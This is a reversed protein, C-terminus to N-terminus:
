NRWHTSSFNSKFKPLIDAPCSKKEKLNFSVSMNFWPLFGFCFESRGMFHFSPKLYPYTTNSLCQTADGKRWPYKHGVGPCMLADPGTLHGECRLEGEGWGLRPGGSVPHSAWPGGTLSTEVTQESRQEKVREYLASMLCRARISMIPPTRSTLFSSIKFITLNRVMMKPLVFPNFSSGLQEWKEGTQIQAKPIRYYKKSSWLCMLCIPLVKLGCAQM